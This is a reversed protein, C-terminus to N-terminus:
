FNINVGVTYLRTTPVDAEIVGGYQEPDINGTNSILLPTEANVYFRMSRLGLQQVLDPPLNYGLRINRIKLFSGDQYALTSSYLPYERNVNPQPYANTPNSSTWYDVDLNNYRANLATEKYENYIMQGVSAYLFISLNFGKYRFHNAIGGSWDPMDTGLIVQDQENIVGDGNQDKIRIEGPDQGYSDALQAEDKQWIGIKEYDYWVTLPEGIFWENGVDDENDGYLALIEEKNTFFTLDTSWSFDDRGSSVINQSSLTFEFGTNRTKGVNQFVSNFGSTIPLNRELLMDTTTTQYVNVSGTIRNNWLGYDLGFNLQKSTEWKLNPNAIEGPRYGYGPNDGFQYATRTLSGQTQYPDIATNGTVGYSVRLKLESFLDQGEMFPEEVIRWGVAASPFIGWKNKEALRSSGDARGTLTLLYKNNYQYNVRAMFSMMSWEELYSEYNETTSATGLNHYKQQEYPLGSVATTDTEFNSSQISFLGTAKIDHVGGFTQNYNLIHEFTYDFSRNNIKEAYPTGEGRATTLTGQFIGQRYSSLDPGFNMRYTFHDSFDYEAFLNSFIRMRNRDDLMKGPVLDNLPNAILGDDTPRFDLTGDPNYPDGLPNMAVATGYPNTGYAQVSRALLTSTGIRFDDNINHDLNIRVNYRNFSQGPIIGIENFYNASIAFQTKDNGGQITFNHSQQYGAPDTVLDAYDYTRGNQVAQLEPGTFIDEDNTYRDVARYAERRMEAFEPGTMMDPKELQRSVGFYGDYSVRTDFNGGRKTTILIVGNAGRSGYIATASADKLVEISQINQTNIDSLDGSFPIGDVIYLPDNSATLSRRGRIRVTVGEGPRTGSTAVMVGAARGRLASAPDSVPVQNLEDASVSSVSGTVDQQEQTGYGVVVLEEGEVTEPAMEVNITSRGNIPIQQTEFGVFSFVLTDSESPATLTYNGSADTSTGITTGKVTINVGPLPQGEDSSTVTGSVTHEQENAQYLSHTDAIARSVPWVLMAAVLFIGLGYPSIMRGFNWIRPILDRM